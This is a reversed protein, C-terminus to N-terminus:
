STAISRPVAAALRSGLLFTAVAHAYMGPATTMGEHAQGPLVTLHADRLEAALEDTAYLGRRSESGVQLCVPMRLGRYDAASFPHALLARIDEFSAPADQVIPPWLESARLADLEPLPVGIVDRFFAFPYRDWDAAAALRDLTARAEPPFAAPRPPEYLVLARVCEPALRAANLACHAGYSHGLLFVPEGVHRMLAVVDHAEDILTHGTTADTEGRNRRAMAYLTFRDRLIPEVFEWNTHHDSFAGHVLVLPPGSGSKRYSVRVGKPSTVHMM